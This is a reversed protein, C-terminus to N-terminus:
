FAKYILDIMDKAKPKGKIIKKMTNCDMLKMMAFYALMIYFDDGLKEYKKQVHDRIKEKNKLIKRKTDFNKNLVVIENNNIYLSDGQLKSAIYDLTVVSGIDSTKVIPYEHKYEPRSPLKSREKISPLDQSPLKESLMKAILDVKEDNINIKGVVSFMVEKKIGTIMDAVCTNFEERKGSLGMLKMNETYKSFVKAPSLASIVVGVTKRLSSFNTATNWNVIFHDNQSSCDVRSVKTKYMELPSGTLKNSINEYVAWALASKEVGKFDCMKRDRGCKLQNLCYLNCNFPICMSIMLDPSRKNPLVLISINNHKKNM